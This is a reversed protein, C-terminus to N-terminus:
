KEEIIAKIRRLQDLTLDTYFKNFYERLERYISESEVWDLYDQESRFLKNETSVTSKMKLYYTKNLENHFQYEGGWSTQVIVYKKGIKTVVATINRANDESIRSGYDRIIVEDGIKFAKIDM